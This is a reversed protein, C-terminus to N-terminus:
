RPNALSQVLTASAAAIVNSQKAISLNLQRVLREETTSHLSVQGDGRGVGVAIDSAIPLWMEVAPDNLDTRGPSTLKVVPRSGIVFSKNPKLIQLVAIGRRELVHIMETSFGVLSQVRVNRVIRAKAEPTELADIEDRRQPFTARLEEILEDIMVGAEADTTAARQSEPARRWQLLFFLYWLRKAAIPLEPPKGARAQSLISQVVGVADSEIMSLLREMAPDKIGSESVTSYLHNQHFLEKPRAPRVTVPRERHNCWYLLGKPDTFGNLIM